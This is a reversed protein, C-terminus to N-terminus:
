LASLSFKQISVVGGGGPGPSLYQLMSFSFLIVSFYFRIKEFFQHDELGVILLM